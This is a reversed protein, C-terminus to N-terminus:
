LWSMLSMSEELRDIAKFVIQGQDSKAYASLFDHVSDNGVFFMVPRKCLHDRWCEIALLVALSRPEFILPKAGADIFNASVSTPIQWSFWALLEAREGSLM